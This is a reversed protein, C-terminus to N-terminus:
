HYHVKDFVKHLITNNNSLKFSNYRRIQKLLPYQIWPDRCDVQVHDPFHQSRHHVIMRLLPMALVHLVVQLRRTHFAFARTCHTASRCEDLIYADIFGDDAQVYPSAM